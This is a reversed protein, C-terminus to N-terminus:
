SKEVLYDFTSIGTLRLQKILDTLIETKIDKKSSLQVKANPNKKLFPKIRGALQDLPCLKENFLIGAHTVRIRMSLRSINKDPRKMIRIPVIKDIFSRESGKLDFYAKDFFSRAKEKRVQLHAKGIAKLTFDIAEKSTGRDFQYVIVGKSIQAKNKGGFSMEDSEPGVGGWYDNAQIFSQAISKLDEKRVIQGNALLDDKRNQMIQLVNRKKVRSTSSKTGLEAMNALKTVVQNSQPLNEATWHSLWVQSSDAQTILPPLENVKKIIEPQTFAQLLLLGAPFFLLAKAVGWGKIQKKKMMKLRKSIPGQKFHNAAAFRRKGVAKELILLQYQTADIGTNLVAQDAQFEHVLKLEKKLLWAFPNFWQLYCVLEILIVDFSHHLRIHAEEHLLIAKKNEQYDAKSLVIYKYFSFAQISDKVIALLIDKYSKITAKRLWKYIRHYSLSFRIALLSLISWYVLATWNIPTSEPTEALTQKENSSIVAAAPLPIEILERVKQIPASSIENAPIIHALLPMAFAACVSLLLTKRKYTHNADRNLLLKYLVYFFALSIGIKIMYSIFILM